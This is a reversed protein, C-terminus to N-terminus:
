IFNIHSPKNIYKWVFENTSSHRCCGTCDKHVNFETQLKKIISWYHESDLIERLSQKHLDGYMYKDNNFLYGCPYCKGNGSIQFILPADVCHDYIRRGRDEIMKYKPIIATEETSMSEARRLVDLVEQNDYWALNFRSMAECAPDSFQKIVFYDVGTEIAFNAEPIVQGLADPMLVMQLGVTTKLNLKNRLEVTREINAKVKEWYDIGHIKKYGASNVASLNFRIWVSNELMVRIKNDDLLVGNTAIGIDLGNTKGAIIADYMAPNLTPEGDGTLSMSKIGIKPADALLNILIDRAILENSKKQYIGYCYECKINCFKTLGIDIYIPYVREGKDYHAIVRDMHWLLKNSDLLWKDKM